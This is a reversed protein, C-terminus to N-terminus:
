GWQNWATVTLEEVEKYPKCWCMHELRTQQTLSFILLLLWPPATQVCRKPSSTNSHLHWFTILRVFIKIEREVVLKAEQLPISACHLHKWILELCGAHCFDKNGHSSDFSGRHKFFLTAFNKTNNLQKPENVWEGARTARQIRKGGFCEPKINGFYSDAPFTLLEWDSFYWPRRNIQIVSPPIKLRHQQLPPPLSLPSVLAEELLERLSKCYREHPHLHSCVRVLRESHSELVTHSTYVTCENDASLGGCRRLLFLYIFVYIFLSVFLYSLDAWEQVRCPVQELVWQCQLFYEKPSWWSQSCAEPTWKDRKSQFIVLPVQDKSTLLDAKGM